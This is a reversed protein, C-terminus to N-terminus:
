KRRWVLKKHVDKEQTRPRNCCSSSAHKKRSQTRQKWHRGQYTYIVLNLMTEFKWLEVDTHLVCQHPAENSSFNTEKTMFFNFSLFKKTRGVESFLYLKGWHKNLLSFSLNLGGLPSPSRVSWNYKSLPEQLHVTQHGCFFGRLSLPFNNVVMFHQFHTYQVALIFFFLTISTFRQQEKM